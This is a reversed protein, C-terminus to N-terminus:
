SKEGKLKKIENDINRLEQYYMALRQKLDAPSLHGTYGQLGARIQACREIQRSNKMMM